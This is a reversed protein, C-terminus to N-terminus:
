EDLKLVIQLNDTQNRELELKVFNQGIQSVRFGKIYDGERLIKDDIMCCNGQESRIISLLRLMQAQKRLRQQRLMDDDVEPGKKLDTWLLEHQFPNKALQNVHVQQVDSFEYFKEVIEDMRSFMEAKIGTLRAIAAEIRSEADADSAAATQPTSKKIMFGLSILGIVFLAVLMSTTKKVNRGGASVTLYEEDRPSQDAGAAPQEQGTLDSVAQERMFSLM